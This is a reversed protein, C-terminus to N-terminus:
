TNLRYRKCVMSVENIISSHIDFRGVPLAGAPMAAAMPSGARDRISQRAAPCDRACSCQVRPARRRSGM